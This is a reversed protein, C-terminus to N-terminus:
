AGTAVKGLVVVVVVTEVVFLRGCPRDATGEGSLSILVSERHGVFAIVVGAAPRVSGEARFIARILGVNSGTPDALPSCGSFYRLSWPEIFFGIVFVHISPGIVVFLLIDVFVFVDIFLLIGTVYSVRSAVVIGASGGIARKAGKIAGILGIL